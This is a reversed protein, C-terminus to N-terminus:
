VGIDVNIVWSEVCNRRWWCMGCFHIDCRREVWCIEEGGFAQDDHDGASATTRERYLELSGRWWIISMYERGCSDAKGECGGEVLVARGFDEKEAAAQGDEFGGDVRELGGGDGGVWSGGDEDGYGAVHGREVRDAGGDGGDFGCGGVDVDQDVVRPDEAGLVACVDVGGLCDLLEAVGHDCVVVAPVGSEGDVALGDDADGREEQGEEFGRICAAAPGGPTYDGAHAGASWGGGRIGVVSL